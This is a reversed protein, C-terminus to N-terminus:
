QQCQKSNSYIEGESEMFVRPILGEKSYNNHFNVAKKASPDLLIFRPM